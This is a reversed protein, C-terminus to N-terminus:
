TQACSRSRRTRVGVFRGQAGATVSRGERKGRRPKGCDLFVPQGEEGGVSKLRPAPDPSPAGACLSGNTPCGGGGPRALGRSVKGRGCTRQGLPEASRSSEVGRRVREIARLTGAGGM